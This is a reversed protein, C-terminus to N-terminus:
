YSVALVCGYVLVEAIQQAAGLSDGTFGGLRTRLQAIFGVRFIALTVAILVLWWWDMIFVFVILPLAAIRLASWDIADALPKSKGDAKAYSLSLMLSIALWRSIVASLVIAALAVPASLLALVAVRWSLIFFLGSVGFTGLRSDTMIALRQKEDVGGFSDCYDAFGDEHFAGTAIVIAAVCCLSAIVPSKFLTLACLYVLAQYLGLLLGVWPFFRAARNLAEPSYQIAVPAPFRTLFTWALWFENLSSSTANTTM